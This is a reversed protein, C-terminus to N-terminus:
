HEFGDGKFYTENYFLLAIFFAFYAFYPLMVWIVIQRRYHSWLFTILTKVFETMFFNINDHTSLKHLFYHGEESNLIWYLDFGKVTVPQSASDETTVRNILEQAVFTNHNDVVVAGESDVKPITLSQISKM